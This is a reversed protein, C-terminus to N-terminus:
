KKLKDIQKQLEAATEYDEKEIAKEKSEELIFLENEDQVCVSTIDPNLLVFNELEKDSYNLILLQTESCKAEEYNSWKAELLIKKAIPDNNVCTLFGIKDAMRSWEVRVKEGPKVDSLTRKQPGKPKRKFFNLNM